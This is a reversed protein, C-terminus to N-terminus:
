WTQNRHYSFLNFAFPSSGTLVRRSHEVIMWWWLSTFFSLFKAPTKIQSSPLSLNQSISAIIYGLEATLKLSNCFKIFEKWIFYSLNLMSTIFNNHFKSSKKGFLELIKLLSKSLVFLTKELFDLGLNLFRQNFKDWVGCMGLAMAEFACVSAKHLSLMFDHFSKILRFYKRGPLSTKDRRSYWISPMTDSSIM